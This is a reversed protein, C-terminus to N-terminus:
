GALTASTVEEADDFVVAAGDEIFKQPWAARHETLLSRPLFLLRGIRACEAAQHLTGSTEGAEIIVTADTLAAMVKNRAPFNSRHVASGVEFPSVLLHDRYIIEQLRANGIPSCRDLPTGIVAAIRGGGELAETLAATDIGMALGSAVVIGSEVLSRAMQRARKLGRETPKRSGVIAVAPRQLLDLHGACYLIPGGESASGDLRLLLQPSLVRGPPVLDGVRATEIRPPACYRPGRAGGTRGAVIRGRGRRATGSGM